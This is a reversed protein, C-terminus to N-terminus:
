MVVALWYAVAGRDSPDAPDMDVAGVVVRLCAMDRILSTGVPQAAVAAALQVLTTAIALWLGGEVRPMSCPYSARPTSATASIANSPHM